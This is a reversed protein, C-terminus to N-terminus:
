RIEVTRNGTYASISRIWSAGRVTALCSSFRACARRIGRQRIRNYRTTTDHPTIHHAGNIIDTNGRSEM